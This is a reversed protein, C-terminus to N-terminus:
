TWHTLTTKPGFHTWHPKPVHQYLNPIVHIHIFSSLIKIKSDVIGKLHVKLHNNENLWFTVMMKTIEQLIM